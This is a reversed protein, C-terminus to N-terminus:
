QCLSCPSRSFYIFCKARAQEFHRFITKIDGDSSGRPLHSWSIREFPICHHLIKSSRRSFCAKSISSIESLLLHSLLLPFSPRCRTSQSLLLDNKARVIVAFPSSKYCDTPVFVHPSSIRKLLSSRHRNHFLKTEEARCLNELQL